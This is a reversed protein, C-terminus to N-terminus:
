EVLTKYICTHRYTQGPRLVTSPFAPHNPSDPFHQPELCFASRPTYPHNNKGTIGPPLKDACYLQLGPQDTLVELVRGTKQSVAHAAPAARDLVFNLGKRAGIPAPHRFDFPTGAVSAIEGTPIHTADVPTCHSAHISLLHAGIDGSGAGDLNFFTHNTFNVVTPKDTTAECTIALANDDTLAYVMNVRLNGPFGQDNDPSLHTFELTRTDPQRTEWVVTHFGNPGGHLANPANNVPIRYEIGDLTFRGRAIRNAYRGIAAGFYPEPSDIYSQINDYGLVIDGPTGDRDPALWSVIRAGYSTVCIEVGRTNALVFLGSQKGGIFQRFRRHHLGSRTPPAHIDLSM